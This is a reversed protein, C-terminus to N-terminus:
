ELIIISNDKIMHSIPRTFTLKGLLDKSNVVLTNTGLNGIWEFIMNIEAIYVFKM